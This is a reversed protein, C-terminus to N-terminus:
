AAKGLVRGAVLFDANASAYWCLRSILVDFSLTMAHKLSKPRPWALPLHRLRLLAGTSLLAGLVAGCVLTWYRFGAVAFGVMCVALIVAQVLDIVALAKFRLDRQLLAFPVTKFSTIVFTTSMAAVVLPLQPAHFFQGLPIAVACSLLLSALGSLVVLGPWRARPPRTDRDRLSGRLPVDRAGHAQRSRRHSSRRLVGAAMPARRSIAGSSNQRALNLVLAHAPDHPDDFQVLPVGHVLRTELPHPVHQAVAPGVALPQPDLSRHAQPHAPERDHIHEAATLRHGVLISRHPADVIAFDV